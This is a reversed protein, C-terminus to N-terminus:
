ISTPSFGTKSKFVRCFHRVDNYGVMESVEYIKYQKLNILRIAENIRYDTIFNMITNGTEKKFIRMLYQPTVYVNKALEEISINKFYNDMIFYITQQVMSSYNGMLFLESHSFINLLLEEIYNKVESFFELKAIETSPNPIKDFITSLIDTKGSVVRLVLISFETICNKVIEANIATKQSLLNFYNNLAAFVKESDLSHLANTVKAIEDNSIRPTEDSLEFDESYEIIVAGDTMFKQEVSKEAQKLASYLNSINQTIRSIGTTITANYEDFISSNLDNLIGPIINNTEGFVLLIIDCVDQQCYFTHELHDNLMEELKKTIAFVCESKKRDIQIKYFKFPIKPLNVNYDSCIQKIKEESFTNLRIIEHLANSKESSRHRKTILSANKKKLIRNKLSLIVKILEDTDVPKLLYNSVGENLATKAYQFNDHGTLIVVEVDHASENIKKILTLGDMYPMCIDTIIIDPHLLNYKEMAEQGDSAEGVIKLDYQEWNIANQLGRRVIYKDDVILVNLMM